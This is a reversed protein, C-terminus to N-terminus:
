NEYNDVFMKRYLKMGNPIRFEQANKFAYETNPKALGFKDPSFISEEHLIEPAVGADTSVIPTKIISCELIAQPGGEIRSTVIYLDLINYLKNLTELDAMEFYEYPIGKAEFNNILYNRRNGALVIKLNKNESYIQEVINLFIDPGKILKPSILDHM